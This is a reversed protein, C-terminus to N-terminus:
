FYLMAITGCIAKVLMLGDVVVLYFLLSRRKRLSFATLILSLFPLINLGIRVPHFHRSVAYYIFAGLGLVSLPILVFYITKRLGLRVVITRINRRHDEAFDKVDFMICLLTVFMFNKLFLFSGILTIPYKSSHSIEYFWPPYITVWGAWTFGIVFPKLWGIRRLNYAGFLWASGYYLAATLPFVGILLWDKLTCAALSSAHRWAFAALAVALALTFLVQQITLWRHHRHYWRNRAHVALSAPRIIYPHSYFLVTGLFVLVYYPWSNLPYQQQLSAEVSLAIACCGYFYNGYFFGTVLPLQRLGAWVSRM